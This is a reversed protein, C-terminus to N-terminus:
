RVLQNEAILVVDDFAVWGATARFALQVRVSDYPATAVFSGVMGEYPFRGGQLKLTFRDTVDAGSALRVRVKVQANDPLARARAWVGLTLRDGERGDAETVRQELSSLPRVNGGRFRFGCAGGHHSRLTDPACERAARGHGSFEWGDPVGDADDDLEMTGNGLINGAAPAWADGDLMVWGDRFVTITKDTLDRPTISGLAPNVSSDVLAPTAGSPFLVEVAHQADAAVGFHTAYQSQSLYGSGGDVVRTQIGYGAEDIRRLRVTAGHQTQRGWGDVAVVRLFSDAFEPATDLENRYLEHCYAGTVLDLDGDDDYDGWASNDARLDLATFDLDEAFTGDGQNLLLLAAASPRMVVLDLYGNHDVDAWSDGWLLQLPPIGAASTVDVMLGCDNRFLRGGALARLWLDLDGDNDYDVFMSGEDFLQPIGVQERVDTFSGDGDNVFLHWACYLDLRGDGNWDAWHAGEPRLGAPIGELAVGADNAVETFTGDGENHFLFSQFPPVHSYFPAFLDLHGDGDYDGWAATEGYGQIDMGLAPAVDVFTGDGQNQLLLTSGREYPLIILDLDGDNDYDAWAAGHYNGGALHDRFGPMESFTGNGDNRYLPLDLDGDADYDGWAPPLTGVGYCPAEPGMSVWTFRPSMGPTGDSAAKTASVVPGGCDSSAATGTPPTAGLWGAALVLFGITAGFRVTVEVLGRPAM